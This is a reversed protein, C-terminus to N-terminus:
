QLNRALNENGVPFHGIHAVLIRLIHVVDCFNAKQLVYVLSKWYCAILLPPLGPSPLTWKACIRSFILVKQQQFIPTQKLIDKM